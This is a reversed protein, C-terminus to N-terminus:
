PPHKCGGKKTKRLASRCVRPPVARPACRSRPPTRQTRGATRRGASSPRPWGSRRASSRRARVWRAISRGAAGPTSCSRISTRSAACPPRTGFSWPWWGSQRRLAASSPSSARRAPCRRRACSGSRGSRRQGPAFIRRPSARAWRRRSICTSRVRTSPAYSARTTSTSSSRSDRSSTATDSSARLGGTTWRSPTRSAARAAFDSCSRATPSSACTGAACRQSGSAATPAFM